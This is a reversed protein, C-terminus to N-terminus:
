VTPSGFRLFELRAQTALTETPYPIKLTDGQLEQSGFRVSVSAVCALSVRVLGARSENTKSSGSHLKIGLM